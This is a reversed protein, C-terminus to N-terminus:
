EEVRLKVTGSWRNEADKQWDSLSNLWRVTHSTGDVDIFLFPNRSGESVSTYWEWLDRFDAERVGAFSRVLALSRVGKRSVYLEGGGSVGAALGLDIEDKSPYALGKLRLTHAGSIFHIHAVKV